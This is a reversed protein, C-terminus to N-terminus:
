GSSLYNLGFSTTAQLPFIYNYNRKISSINDKVQYCSVRKEEGFHGYRINPRSLRWNMQPVTTEKISPLTAPTHPKSSVDM